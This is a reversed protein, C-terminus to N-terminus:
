GASRCYQISETWESNPSLGVGSTSIIILDRMGRERLNITARAVTVVNTTARNGISGEPAMTTGGGVSANANAPSRVEEVPPPVMVRTGFQGAPVLRGQLEELPNPVSM